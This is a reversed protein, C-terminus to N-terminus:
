VTTIQNRKPNFLMTYYTVVARIPFNVSLVANDATQYFCSYYVQVVPDQAFSGVFSSYGESNLQYAMAGSIYEKKTMGFFKHFPVYMSIKMPGKSASILSMKTWPKNDYDVLTQPGDLPKQPNYAAIALIANDGLAEPTCILDIRSGLVLFNTYVGTQASGGLWNQFGAPTTITAGSSGSANVWPATGIRIPTPLSFGTNVSWPLYVSNAQVEFHSSAAGTAAVYTDYSTHFKMLMRDPAIRKNSPNIKVTNTFGFRKATRKKLGRGHKKYKRNMAKTFKKKPM